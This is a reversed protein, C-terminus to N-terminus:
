FDMSYDIGIKILFQNKNLAITGLPTYNYSPSFYLSFGYSIYYYVPIGILISSLGKQTVTKTKIIDKKINIRKKEITYSSYTLGALPIFKFNGTKFSYLSTISLNNIKDTGFYHEFSVDFILKRFMFDSSLIMSNNSGSLVNITDNLYYYHCLGFNFDMWDSLTLSYEAELSWNQFTSSKGLRQIADFDLSLGNDHMIGASFDMIPKGNSLDAGNKIQKNQYILQSYVTWAKDEDDKTILSDQEEEEDIQNDDLASDAEFTKLSGEPTQISLSDSEVQSSDPEEEQNKASLNYYFFLLLLSIIIVQLIKLKYKIIIKGRSYKIM